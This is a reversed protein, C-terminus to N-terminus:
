FMCMLTSAGSVSSPDRLAAGVDMVLQADTASTCANLAQEWTVVADQMVLRMFNTHLQQDCPWGLNSGPRCHRKLMVQERKLAVLM